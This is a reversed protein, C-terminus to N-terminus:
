ATMGGDVTYVAGSVYSADDSLLFAFVKAAEDADGVRPLPISAALTAVADKMGSKSEFETLLPTQTLGPAVANVRIGKEPGYRRAIARTLGVVGHKATVYSVTGARADLGAVSAANVISGGPQIAALEAKMSNAVGTLNIALLQELTDESDDHWSSEPKMCDTIGAINAAADLKGFKKVTQSIWENLQELDRVDARQAWIYDSSKAYEELEHAAKYLNATNADSLSVKAGRIALIKALAFGIGSAGGTIAIVKGEMDSAKTLQRSVAKLRENASMAPKLAKSAM